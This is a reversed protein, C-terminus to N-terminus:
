QDRPIWVVCLATSPGRLCRAQTFPVNVSHPMHGSRVGQRPEEEKGAFRGPGRADVVQEQQSDVNSLM